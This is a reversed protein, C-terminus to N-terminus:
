TTEEPKNEKDSEDTEKLAEAQENMEARKQIKKEIIKGIIWFLVICIGVIVTKVPHEAFSTISDGIYAITFIMVSKGMIVALLFQSFRVRSLAAVTNIISSPSFPFCLLLFLPGFGHREFWLMVKQVQKHKRIFNFLKKQGLRRIILFVLVAGVVSGIWSILFGKVLGFALANAIVFVFLPLFPLFAELMPLLLGPLMGFSEYTNLLKDIYSDFTGSEGTQINTISTINLLMM